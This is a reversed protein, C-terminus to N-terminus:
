SRMLATLQLFFVGVEFGMSRLAAISVISILAALIAYEALDQGGTHYVLKRLFALMRTRWKVRLDTVPTLAFHNRRPGRTRM